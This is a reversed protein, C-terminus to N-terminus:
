PCPNSIGNWTVTADAYLGANVTVLYAGDVKAGWGHPTGGNNLDGTDQSAFPMGSLHGNVTIQRGLFNQWGVGSIADCTRFCFAGTTSAVVKTQYTITTPSTVVLQVTVNPCEVSQADAQPQLDVVARSDALGGVDPAVVLLDSGADPASMADPHAAIADPAATAIADLTAVFTDPAAVIADPTATTLVDVGADPLSGAGRQPGISESVGEQACGALYFLVVFSLWLLKTM